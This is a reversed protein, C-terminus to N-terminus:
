TQYDKQAETRSNVVFLALVYIRYYAKRALRIRFKETGLDKQAARNKDIVLIYTIENWIWKHVFDSSANASINKRRM